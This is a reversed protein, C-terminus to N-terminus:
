LTVFRIFSLKIHDKFRRAALGGQQRGQVHNRRATNQDSDAQTAVHAQRHVLNNGFLNVQPTRETEMGFKGRCDM